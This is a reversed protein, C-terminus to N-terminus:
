IKLNIFREIILMVEDFLRYDNYRLSLCGKYNEKKRLGSNKKNYIHIRNKDIGTIKSWYNIMQEQNHYSHLHLWAYLKEEKIKFAVRLLKLYVRIMEPDSNIFYFSRESKAGECWYLLALFVKLDDVSYQGKRKLVQCDNDLEKLYQDNKDSLKKRAKLQSFILLNKFRNRGTDSMKEDRVWLSATSRSICLAEGIERTSYGDRRLKKAKALLKGKM